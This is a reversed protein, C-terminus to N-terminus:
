LEENYFMKVPVFESGNFEYVGIFAGAEDYIKFNGCTESNEQM